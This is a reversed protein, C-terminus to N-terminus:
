RVRTGASKSMINNKENLAFLMRTDHTDFRYKM